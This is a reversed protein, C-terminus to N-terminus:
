RFRGTAAAYAHGLVGHTRTGAVKTRAPRRHHWRRGRRGTGICIPRDRFRRRLRTRLGGGGRAPLACQPGAGIGATAHRLRPREHRSRALGPGSTRHARRAYRYARPRGPRPPCPSRVVRPGPSPLLRTRPRQRFRKGSRVRAPCRRAPGPSPRQVLASLDHRLCRGPTALGGPRPPRRAGRATGRTRGRHDSAGRVRRAHRRRHDALRVDGPRLQARLM